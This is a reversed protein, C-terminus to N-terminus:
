RADTITWTIEADAGDSITFGDQVLDADILAVGRAGLSVAPFGDGDLTAGVEDNEDFLDAPLGAPSGCQRGKPFTRPPM